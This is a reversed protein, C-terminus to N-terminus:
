EFEALECNTLPNKKDFNKAFKKVQNITVEAPEVNMFDLKKKMGMHEMQNAAYQCCIEFLRTHDVYLAINTM